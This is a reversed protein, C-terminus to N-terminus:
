TEHGPLDGNRIIEVAHASLFDLQKKAIFFSAIVPCGSTVKPPQNAQGTTQGLEGITSSGNFSSNKLAALKPFIRRVVGLIRTAYM